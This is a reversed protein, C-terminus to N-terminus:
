QCYCTDPGLIRMMRSNCNRMTGLHLQMTWGLRAYQRALFLMLVTKYKEAESCDITQGDLAKKLIKSAEEDSSERYIMPDMAHDSIKCGIGNFFDIRDLLATKLSEIDNITRGTVHELKGIWEAFGVAQINLAKDPRFTPLVKTDFSSDSALSQHPKLADTPDDTTCLVRVNSRRILARASFEDNKLMENSKNWIEEATDPSLLQDIEFYRLLELHTWHYLPNGICRPLTEAWKIFKDKDWSEGTIYKEEIGNSRIARWKYHDGGLWLETINRYKKNEAIEVPSLHCHYDFIPMNKAYEHYLQAATNNQLLFNEGIFSKM